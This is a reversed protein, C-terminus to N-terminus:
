DRKPREEYRFDATGITVIDGNSLFHETVRKRNVFVGNKSGWDIVRAMDGETLIVAHRRSIYQAKLQIDNESTRGITLRDKFLPFRLLQDDVKGVLLRTVRDRPARLEIRESMRDDIDQIVEEIDVISELQQSKRAIEEMLAQIAESKTALKAENEKTEKQLYQVEQELERIRADSNEANDNLLRELQDKFSRAESLDSTLQESLEESTAVTEQAEGLEFRLIRIEEQHRADKSELEATLEAAAQEAEIVIKALEANRTTTAQLSEQQNEYLRTAHETSALVDTLQHRMMDAYEESRAIRKKLERIEDADSVRQGEHVKERAEALQQDREALQDELAHVSGELKRYHDDRERIESKLSKITADRKKILNKKRGLEASLDDIEKQLNQTIEERANIEAELGLWRARLQEIDFQLRDITESRSEGGSDPGEFDCTHADAEVEDVGRKQRFTPIELEATVDEDSVLEKIKNKKNAM